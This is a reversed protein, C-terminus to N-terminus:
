RVRSLRRRQIGLYWNVRRKNKRRLELERCQILKSLYIDLDAQTAPTPKEDNNLSTDTTTAEESNTGEEQQHVQNNSSQQIPAQDEPSRNGWCGISCLLGLLGLLVLMNLNTM